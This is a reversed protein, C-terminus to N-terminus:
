LLQGARDSLCRNRQVSGFMFRTTEAMVPFLLRRAMLESCYRQSFVFTIVRNACEEVGLLGEKHAEWDAVARLSRTSTVVVRGKGDGSYIRENDSSVFVTLVPQQHIRLTHVPSPPTAMDNTLPLSYSPSAFNLSRKLQKERRGRGAAALLQISVM